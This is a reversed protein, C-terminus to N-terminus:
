RTVSISTSAMNGAPDSARATITYSSKNRAKNKGTVNWTYSLTSGYAVAVEQGNILLSIKAVKKNDSAAANIAVSGSVVSGNAPSTIAVTPPITDNIVTVSVTSSSAQNGSADYARSQLTASGDSYTSTDWSFAYPATIDTGILGSNAYFEVRTVGINDTANVNVPVLGSVNGSTPSAISNSPAQTDIAITQKAKAVAAAADVRGWGYYEDYGSAGLDAATSFLVQDLTTPQLGPNASIMLGYVGAAVPSAASTGSCSGYLAGRKTTMISVGPAALDVYGGYSSFGTKADVTDTAGVATLVDSPPDAELVGSNGAAVVVVGGKSRMYEAAKLAASVTSVRSFSLNAVRAGHDAAWTIGQAITSSYAYGSTDTVRIPMLKARWNIAAVGAANNGAAAAIGAVQTGHGTVDRTDSNADYFNWGPVMQPALDPHTPEVGSDLIAITVGDGVTSDWATPAKIKPLHWANSYYPDNPLQLPEHVRDLEAFKFHPNKALLQAVAVENAQPPLEVVYVNIQKIHQVRKGGHPKLAKDVEAESLGARPQVLVRGKVFRITEGAGDTQAGGNPSGAVALAAALMGAACRRSWTVRASRRASALISQTFQCSSVSWEPYKQVVPRM